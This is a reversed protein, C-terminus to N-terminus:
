PTNLLGANNQNIQNIQNGQSTNYNTLAQGSLVCVGGSSFTTQNACDSGAPLLGASRVASCNSLGGASNTYKNFTGGLGQCTTADQQSQDLPAQQPVIVNPTVPNLVNSFTLLQPNITALILWSGILLLLGLLSATLRQRAYSKTGIVDSTMYVVGAYVFSGTAIIGGLIILVKFIANLLVGFQATGTQNLGPIPELPVYNISTNVTQSQIGNSVPVSGNPCTGDSNAPVSIGGSSNDICGTPLNSTTPTITTPSNVTTPLASPPTGTQFISCSGDSQQYMGNACGGTSPTAAPAPTPTSPAPTVTPTPSPSPPPVPTAATGSPTQTPNLVDSGTDNCGVANGNADYAINVCANAVRISNGMSVGFSLTLIFLFLINKVINKM